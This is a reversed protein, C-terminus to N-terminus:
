EVGVTTLAQDCGPSLESAHDKLCQAVRGEGVAVKACYTDLESRCEAAVHTVAGVAQELQAAADYLAFECQGSLQDGHAYLCALLRDQGPTVDACYQALESSCGEVVQASLQDRMAGRAVAASARSQRAATVQSELTSVRRDLDAVHDPSVCASLMLMAAAGALGVKLTKAKSM